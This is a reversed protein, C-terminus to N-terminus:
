SRGLAGYLARLPAASREDGMLGLNMQHTVYAFALEAGPDAFALSGGAGPHGFSEPGCAAGLTPPLMYGLGFRTPLRIVADPGDSAPRRLADLDVGRLLRGDLLAAYHGALARASAIGNSSPIEAAHLARTNWVDGYRLDGPGTLARGLLTDSGMLRERLAREGPDSPEPPPLLTAVRPELAEPLGVHLDLALPESISAAVYRGPSAGTVRRVVEGLVYGYTRAHYGHREGPKWRLPQAELARVVPEWAFVEETTLDAEVVPLGARHSLVQRLTVAEKGAQAFEPWWTAIPADLDLRGEAVLGHVATALVGKTASFVLVLTDREWPLRGEADRHGGWLDVVPEGAVLACLAGGHDAGTEFSARFADAVPEFGPAVHGEVSVRRASSSVNPTTPRGM